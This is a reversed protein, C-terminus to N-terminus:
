KSSTTMNVAAPVTSLPDVIARAHGRKTDVDSCETGSVARLTFSRMFKDRGYLRQPM